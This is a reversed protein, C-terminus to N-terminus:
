SAAQAIPGFFPQLFKIQGFRPQGKEIKPGARSIVLDLSPVALIVSDELGWAWFADDPLGSIAGSANNWWLLGYRDTAGPWETPDAL